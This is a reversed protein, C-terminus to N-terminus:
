FSALRRTTGVFCEASSKYRFKDIQLSKIKSELTSRPIGLQGAAGNPGAVRGMSKELAAEILRFESISGQDVEKARTEASPVATTPILHHRDSGVESLNSNAV